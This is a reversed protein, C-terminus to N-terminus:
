AFRSIDKREERRQAFCNLEDKREKTGEHWRKKTGDHWREKTGDHRQTKTNEHKRTWGDTLIRRM